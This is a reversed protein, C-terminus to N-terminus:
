FDPKDAQPPRVARGVYDHTNEACVMESWAGLPRLYTMTASWPTTFAGEDEVTFELQLAKGRYHPDRAYGPDSIPFDFGERESREEAAKAAEYDILRYHEV